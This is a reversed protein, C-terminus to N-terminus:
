AVVVETDDDVFGNSKSSSSSGTVDGILLLSVLSSLVSFSFSFAVLRSIKRRILGESVGADDKAGSRTAGGGERRLRCYKELSGVRSSVDLESDSLKSFSSRSLAAISVLAVMRLCFLFLCCGTGLGGASWPPPGLGLRLSPNRFKPPPPPAGASELLAFFSPAAPDEGGVEGAGSAAGGAAPAPAAVEDIAAAALPLAEAMDELAGAAALAPAAGSGALAAAAVL